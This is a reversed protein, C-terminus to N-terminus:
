NKNTVTDEEDQKHIVVGLISKLDDKIGFAKFAAKM